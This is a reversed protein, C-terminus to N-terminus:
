HCFRNISIVSSLDYDTLRVTEVVASNFGKLSPTSRRHSKRLANKLNWRLSFQTSPVVTMTVVLQTPTALLPNTVAQYHTTVMNQRCLDPTASQQIAPNHGYDTLVLWTHSVTPHRPQSWLRDTCTLHPQSNSSPTASSSRFPFQLPELTAWQLNPVKQSTCPLHLLHTFTTVITRKPKRTPIDKYETKTYAFTTTILCM